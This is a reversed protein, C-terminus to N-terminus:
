LEVADTNVAISTLMVMNDITESKALPASMSKSTSPLHDPLNIVTQTSSNKATVPTENKTLENIQNAFERRRCMLNIFILFIMVIIFVGPLMLLFERTNEREPAYGTYKPEDDSDM